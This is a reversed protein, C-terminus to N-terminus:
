TPSRGPRTSTSRIMPGAMPMLIAGSIDRRMCMAQGMRPSGQVPDQNTSGWTRAWRFTGNTDFKCLFSDVISSATAHASLNSVGPGPDFDCTQNTSGFMGGVYVDGLGDVAVADCDDYGNGGWTKAWQFTGNSDYKCLFADFWFIPQTSYNTHIDSVPGAPNFDLTPSCFDGVSMPM